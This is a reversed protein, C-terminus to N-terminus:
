KLIVENFFEKGVKYFMTENELRVSHLRHLKAKEVIKKDKFFERDAKLKKWIRTHELVKYVGSEDGFIDVTQQDLIYGQKDLIEFIREQKGKKYNKIIM